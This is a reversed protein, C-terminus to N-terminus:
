DDDPNFFLSLLYSLILLPTSLLVFGLIVYHKKEWEERYWDHLDKLFSRM